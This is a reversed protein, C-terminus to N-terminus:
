LGTALAASQADFHTYTLMQIDSACFVQNMQEESLFGPIRLIHDQMGLADIQTQYKSREERCKGAIILLYDGDNKVLESLINITVDL